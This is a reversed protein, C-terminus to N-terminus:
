RDARGCMLIRRFTYVYPSRDGLEALLRRRYEVVFEEYEEGSLVGKFRALSTGRVWEVVAATSALEHIYVQLRVHVDRLGLDHLVAAYDEPELVNGAVPDLPAADGLRERGLERAVAHSPHAGNAPVQVALEGGQALSSRWRALVARHDAVWQLAANSFVVDIDEGSWAGIDGREFTVEPSAHAAAATLMQPSSDIGRTREAGLRRHLSATLRGDGCGLDVVSGGGRPELLSVLDWFPQEREAAFRNYTEPSWM